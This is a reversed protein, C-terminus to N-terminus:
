FLHTAKKKKKKALWCCPWTYGNASVYFLNGFIHASLVQYMVHLMIHSIRSAILVENSNPASAGWFGDVGAKSDM